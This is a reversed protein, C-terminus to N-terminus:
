EDQKGRVQNLFQDYTTKLSQTLPQDLTYVKGQNIFIPQDMIRELLDFHHTAILLLHNTTDCFKLLNELLQIRVFADLGSFPEDLLYIPVHRSLTLALIVYQKNGKSLEDFKMYPMLQQDEIMKTFCDKNFDQYMNRYLEKLEQITMPYMQSVPPNLSVVKKLEQHDKVIIEGSTVKYIGALLKFLTTKGSGNPGILGYIGHNPLTYNLDHLVVQNGLQKTVQHLTIM